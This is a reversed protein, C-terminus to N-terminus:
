PLNTSDTLYLPGVHGTRTVTHLVSMACVMSSSITILIIFAMFARYNRAGVCNGTRGIDVLVANRPPLRSRILVRLTGQVVTWIPPTVVRYPPMCTTWVHVGIPAREALLKALFSFCLM